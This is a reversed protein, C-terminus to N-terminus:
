TFRWSWRSGRTTPHWGPSSNLLGHATQRGTTVLVVRRLNRSAQCVVLVSCSAHRVVGRSVSGVLLRRMVGHGRWGMVILNARTRRSQRLIVSVPEGSYRLVRANRRPWQGRLRTKDQAHADHGQRRRGTGDGDPRGRCSRSHPLSDDM